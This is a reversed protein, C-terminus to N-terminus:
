CVVGMIDSNDNSGLCEYSSTLAIERLNKKSSDGYTIGDEAYEMEWKGLFINLVGQDKEEQLPTSYWLDLQGLHGWALPIQFNTVLPTSL